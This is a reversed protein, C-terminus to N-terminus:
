QIEQNLSDFEKTSFFEGLTIDFGDCIKKINVIGPNQSKTNLMSYITMPPIGAWNALSNVNMGKEECLQKIRFAVAEKTNM